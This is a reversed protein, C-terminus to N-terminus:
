DVYLFKSRWVCMKIQQMDIRDLQSLITLAKHSIKLGRKEFLWVATESPLLDCKMDVWPVNQHFSAAANQVGEEVRMLAAISSAAAQANPTLCFGIAEALSQATLKNKDLPPPGAGAAAVMSAWFPQSHM